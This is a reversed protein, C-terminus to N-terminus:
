SGAAGTLPIGPMTVVGYGGTPGVDESVAMPGSARVLLPRLGARSLVSTGLSVSAGAAVTGSAITRTRGEATVYVAYHETRASTDTLALHDPAVGVALPAASSGPSPIVWTRSPSSENLGDVADALGAQPSPAAPPGTVMRGVVVGPGGTADITTSYTGGKPIRTEGSTPLVWTSDPLLRVAFPALAGSALQARATVSETTPGPNFVCISSSGGVQEQSQPITWQREPRPAGPVIALGSGHGALLQLESAVVRGTRTIVSTSVRRQDQVFSGVNVVQTQGAKLVLGQFGIPHTVGGPTVFSLDVVDPTSTPNFLSIFLANGSTTLGGPFYWQQSTSSTCPAESWGVHGHILQTVAVGGGSLTVVQSLWSGSAPVPLGSVLQGRAPVSVRAEVTAGTDTVGAITGSEERTGTNTLVVSGPALQGAATTQGTCYWASSEADLAGVLAAPV